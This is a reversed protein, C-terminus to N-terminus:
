RRQQFFRLIHGLRKMSTNYLAYNCCFLLYLNLFIPQAAYRINGDSSYQVNRSNKLTSEEEINVLTIIIRENVSTSNETEFLAINGIDVEVGSDQVDNILFNSLEEKIYSLSEEIM